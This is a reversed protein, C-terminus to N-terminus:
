RTMEHDFSSAFEPPRAEDLARLEDESLQSVHLAERTDLAKLRQYEDASLLVLSDRGHNTISVAERQAVERFRGFERQFAAATVTVM